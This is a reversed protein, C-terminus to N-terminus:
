HHTFYLWGSKVDESIIQKLFEPAQNSRSFNVSFSGDDFVVGSFVNNSLTLNNSKIILESWVESEIYSKNGSFVYGNRPFCRISKIVYDGKAIDDFLVYKIDADPFFNLVKKSEDIKDFMDLSFKHCPQKGSWDSFTTLVAFAGSGNPAKLREVNKDPLSVCGSIGLLVLLSFINKM